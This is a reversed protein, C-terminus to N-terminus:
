RAARGRVRDRRARRGPRRAAARRGAVVAGLEEGREVPRHGVHRALAEGPDDHDGVALDVVHRGAVDLRQTPRHRRRQVHQQRALRALLVAAEDDLLRRAEAEDALPQLEGDPDLVQGLGRGLLGAVGSSAWTLQRLSPPRACCSVTGTPCSTGSDTGISWPPGLTISSSTSGPGCSSVRTLLRATTTTLPTRSRSCPAAPRPRAAHRALPDPAVDEFGVRRDVEDM